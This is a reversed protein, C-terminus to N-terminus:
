RKSAQLILRIKILHLVSTSLNLFTLIDVKIKNSVKLCLTDWYFKFIIELNRIDRSSVQRDFIQGRAHRRRSSPSANLSPFQCFSDLGVSTLVSKVGM